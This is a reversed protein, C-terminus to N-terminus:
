PLRWPTLASTLPIVGSSAIELNFPMRQPEFGVDQGSWSASARSFISQNEFPVPKCLVAEPKSHIGAPASVSTYKHFLYYQCSPTGRSVNGGIDCQKWGQLICSKFNSIHTGIVSDLFPQYIIKVKGIYSNGGPFEATIQVKLIERIGEANYLTKRFCLFEQFVVPRVDNKGLTTKYRYRHYTGPGGQANGANDVFGIHRRSEGVFDADRHGPFYAAIKRLRQLQKRRFLCHKRTGRDTRFEGLTVPEGAKIHAAETCVLRDDHYDSSALAGGIYVLSDTVGKGLQQRIELYHM